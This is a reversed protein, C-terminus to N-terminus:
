TTERDMENEGKALKQCAVCSSCEKLCALLASM